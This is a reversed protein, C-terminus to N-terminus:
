PLVPFAHVSGGHVCSGLGLTICFGVVIETCDPFGIAIWSRVARWIYFLPPLAPRGDVWQLSITPDCQSRLGGRIGNRALETRDSHLPETCGGFGIYDVM